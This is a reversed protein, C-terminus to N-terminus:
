KPRPSGQLRWGARQLIVARRVMDQEEPTLQRRKTFAVKDTANGLAFSIRTPNDEDDITCQFAGDPVPFEMRRLCTIIDPFVPPVSSM